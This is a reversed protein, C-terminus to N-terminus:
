SGVKPSILAIHGRSEVLHVLASRKRMKSILCTASFMDLRVHPAVREANSMEDVHLGRGWMMQRIGKANDM